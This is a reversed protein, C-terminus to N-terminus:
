SEKEIEVSLDAPADGPVRIGLVEIAHKVDEISFEFKDGPKKGVFEEALGPIGIESIQVKSRLYGKDTEEDPTNSTFIVISSELVEEAPVLNQQEDEKQSLDEYDKIQLTKSLKAIADSDIELHNEIALLKYQLDRQRVSTEQLDQQMMTGTRQMLLSNMQAAQELQAVKDTLIKIREKSSLQKTPGGM